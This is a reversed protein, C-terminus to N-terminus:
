WRSFIMKKTGFLLIGHIFLDTGNAALVCISSHCTILITDKGIQSYAGQELEGIINTFNYCTTNMNSHQQAQPPPQQM